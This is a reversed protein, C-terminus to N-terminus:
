PRGDEDRSVLEVPVAVRAEYGCGRKDGHPYGCQCAIDIPPLHTVPRVGIVGVEGLEDRQRPGLCIPCTWVLHPPDPENDVSLSAALKEREGSREVYGVDDHEQSDEM